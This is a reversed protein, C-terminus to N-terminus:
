KEKVYEKSNLDDMMNSLEEITYTEKAGYYENTYNIAPVEDLVDHIAYGYVRSASDYNTDYKISVVNNTFIDVYVTSFHNYYQYIDYQKKDYNKLDEMKEVKVLYKKTSGDVNQVTIVSYAPHNINYSADTSETEFKGIIGPNSDCGSLPITAALALSSYGIIRKKLELLNNKEM